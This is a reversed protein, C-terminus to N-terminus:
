QLQANVANVAAQDIVVDTRNQVANAFAEFIDQSIGSIAQDSAAQKQAAVQPDNADAAAIGDLRVIIAGADTDIVNVDGVDMKFVQTMFDAPTGNIFSRRTAARQTNASLGLTEFGTLPLITAAIDQAQAVIAAQLVQADYGARVADRVQEFPILAPPTIDDLRLAFIGGDALDLLSPYADQTIAAAAARFEEYAAIDDQVQDTWTITGFALDTQQALDELQAGGALLDEIQARSSDILRRARASSLEERLDPEAEEFTVTQSALVANMRFLAPGLFTDLPGIVDGPSASFIADGNAGLDDRTVDGMDVESMALGRAAVLADFDVTDGLSDKAAQAAATDLYILREVLRREPQVFESIREQYLDQLATQDIDLQDQIMDPTLWVYSIQRAEPATFAAPNESYYTQLQADTAAAPPSSLDSATVPAWTIARAEGIFQSLASAYADPAPIGSVVAGQLMTRAIEERVSTEFEAESLGVQQLTFRYAERDFAGTSGRFAPVLLLEERVREDGISIGLTAAENDLTRETVLQALVAQDLGIAQAEQFGVARGLQGSFSQMQDRLGRQYQAVPIDKAGVTGINRINGNLGGTGFGLLGITLLGMIIWLFYRNKRKTAM